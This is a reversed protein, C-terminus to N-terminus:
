ATTKNFISSFLQIEAWKQYAYLGAFTQSVSVFLPSGSVNFYVTNGPWIASSNTLVGYDYINIAAPGIGSPLPTGLDALQVTFSGSTVNMGVYVVTPPTLPVGILTANALSSNSIIITANASSAASPYETFNASFTVRIANQNPNSIYLCNKGTHLPLMLSGSSQSSENAYVALTHSTLLNALCDGDGLGVGNNSANSVYSLTIYGSSPVTVNFDFVSYSSNIYPLPHYSFNALDFYIYSYTPYFYNVYSVNYHGSLYYPYLLSQLVITKNAYIKYTHLHMILNREATYKAQTSNLATQLGSLKQTASNFENQLTLIQGSYTSSVFLYVVAVALVLVIIYYALQTNKAKAM